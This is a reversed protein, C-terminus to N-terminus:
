HLAFRTRAPAPAQSLKIDGFRKRGLFKDAAKSFTPAMLPRVSPSSGAIELTGLNPLRFPVNPMVGAAVFTLHRIEPYVKTRSQRTMRGMTYEIDDHECNGVTLSRLSPCLDVLMTPDLYCQIALDTIQPLPQVGNLASRLASQATTPINIKISHLLPSRQIVLFLRRFTPEATTQGVTTM